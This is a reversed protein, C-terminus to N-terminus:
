LSAKFKIEFSVPAGKPDWNQALLVIKPFHACKCYILIVQILSEKSYFFLETFIKINKDNKNWTAFHGSYSDIEASFGVCLM